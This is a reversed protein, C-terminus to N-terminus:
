EVNVRTSWLQLEAGSQRIWAMHFGEPLGVLGQTDGGNKYRYESGIPDTGQPIPCSPGTDMAISPSWTAGGDTSAAFYPQYCRDTPDARRDYWSVGIVGRGDVAIAPTSADTPTTGDSVTVPSSWSAGGDTSAAVKVRYWGETADLWAMSLRRAGATRDVALRCGGLGFLSKGESAHGYVRFEPGPRPDTFGGTRSAITMRSGVLPSSRLSEPPFMELALVVEGNPLAKLDSVVNLLASEPPPLLLRPFAFTRGGDNSRSVAIVDQALHGFVTINLKAAVVLQGAGGGAPTFGLWPRDMATTVITAPPGWHLGGDESSWVATKDSITVLYARGRDDFVLDPDLGPFLDGGDPRTARVWTSGADPSRYVAVGEREGFVMSAAILRRSDRPDVALASELHRAMPADTSIPKGPLARVRARGAAAGTSGVSAIGAVSGVLLAIVWWPRIHSVRKQM